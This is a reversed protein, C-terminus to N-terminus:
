RNFHLLHPLFSQSHNDLVRLTSCCEHEPRHLTILIIKLIVIMGNWEKNKKTQFIREKKEKLLSSIYELVRQYVDPEKWVYQRCHQVIGVVITSFLFFFFYANRFVSLSFTTPLTVYVSSTSSSTTTTIPTLVFIFLKFYHDECNLRNSLFRISVKIQKFPKTIFRSVLNNTSFLNLM